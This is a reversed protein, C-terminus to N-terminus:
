RLVHARCLSCGCVGPAGGVPRGQGVVVTWWNCFWCLVVLMEIKSGEWLGAFFQAEGINHRWTRGQESSPGGGSIFGFDEGRRVRFLM